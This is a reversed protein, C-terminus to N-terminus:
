QHEDPANIADLRAVAPMPAGILAEASARRFPRHEQNAESVHHEDPANFADLRAVAPM